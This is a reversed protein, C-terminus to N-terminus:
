LVNTETRGRRGLYGHWLLRAAVARHPKWRNGIDELELPNPIADLSLAETVAVQLARDGIPWIDPRGLCALLYVDASWRGIGPIATLERRVEDDDKQALGELPLRHDIIARALERLYRDKQRSVGDARLEAPSAELLREPEMEGLRDRIRHYAAAASALSVQQELIFLVLSQFGAPRQWFAPLGFEKVIRALAPDQKALLRAARAFRAADLSSSM